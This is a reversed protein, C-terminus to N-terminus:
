LSFNASEDLCCASPASLRMRLFILAFSEYRLAAPCQFICCLAILSTDRIFVNVEGGLQALLTQIPAASNTEHSDELAQRTVKQLQEASLRDFEDNKSAMEPHRYCTSASCDAASQLQTNLEPPNVATFITLTM